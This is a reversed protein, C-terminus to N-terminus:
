MVNEKWSLCTLYFILFKYLMLFSMLYFPIFGKLISTMNDLFYSENRNFLYNICFFYNVCRLVECRDHWEGVWCASTQWMFRKNPKVPDLVHSEKMIFYVGIFTVWMRIKFLGKIKRLFIHLIWVFFGYHVCKINVM